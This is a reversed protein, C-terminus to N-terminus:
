VTTKYTLVRTNLVSKMHSQVKSGPCGRVLIKLLVGYGVMICWKNQGGSTKVGRGGVLSMKWGNGPLFVLEGLYIWRWFKLGLRTEGRRRMKALCDM